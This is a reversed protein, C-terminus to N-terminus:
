RDFYFDLAVTNKLNTLISKILGTKLDISRLGNRNSYVALPRVNSKSKCTFGDLELYYDEHCYCKHKNKTVEKCFQSCTGWQHCPHVELCVGNKSLSMNDPCTCVHGLPTNHCYHSCDNETWSSCQDQACLMGEDSNDECDHVQDCVKHVELCLTGNDCSWKPLDCIKDEKKECNKEDSGDFCDIDKDCWHAKPICKLGDQCKQEHELCTEPDNNVCGKEDSGDMCDSYGDCRGSIPVCSKDRTCEFQEQANCQSAIDLTECNEEDSSDSCDSIGNCILESKLCKDDVECFMQNTKNCHSQCNIEDSGDFCDQIGDCM